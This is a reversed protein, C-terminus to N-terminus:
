FSFYLLEEDADYTLLGTTKENYLLGYRRFEGGISWLRVEDKHCGATSVSLVLLKYDFIYTTCHLTYFAYLCEFDFM